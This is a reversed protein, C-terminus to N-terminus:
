YVLSGLGLLALGAIVWELVRRADPDRSEPLFRLAIVVTPITLVPNILFIARWSGHDVLWGGLLPGAGAAVASAGSWVGIARGREKEDFTAGIIALSAPILLAAGVGQIARALILIEV